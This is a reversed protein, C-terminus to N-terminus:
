WCIYCVYCTKNDLNIYVSHMILNFIPLCANLCVIQVSSICYRATVMLTIASIDNGPGNLRIRSIACVVVYACLFGQHHWSFSLQAKEAPPSGASFACPFAWLQTYSLAFSCFFLFFYLKICFHVFSNQMFGRACVCCTWMRFRVGCSRSVGLVVYSGRSHSAANRWWQEGETHNGTLWDEGYQPLPKLAPRNFGGM